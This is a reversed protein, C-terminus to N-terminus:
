ACPNTVFHYLGPGPDELVRVNTSKDATPAVMPVYRFAMMGVQSSQMRRTSTSLAVPMRVSCFAIRARCFSFQPQQAVVGTM